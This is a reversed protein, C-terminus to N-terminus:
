AAVASPSLKACRAKELESRLELVEDYLQLYATKDVVDSGDTLALVRSYQQSSDVLATAGSSTVAPESTNEIQRPITASSSKRPTSILSASM